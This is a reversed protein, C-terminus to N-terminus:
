ARIKHVFSKGARAGEKSKLQEGLLTIVDAYRKTAKFATQVERVEDAALSFGGSSL